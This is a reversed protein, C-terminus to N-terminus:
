KWDEEHVIVDQCYLVTPDIHYYTKLKDTALDIVDDDDLPFKSEVSTIMVMQELVFEVNYNYM